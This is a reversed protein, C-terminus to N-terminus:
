AKWKWLLFTFCANVARLVNELGKFLYSPVRLLKFFKTARYDLSTGVLTEGREGGAYPM